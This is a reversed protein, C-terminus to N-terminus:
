FIEGSPNQSVLIADETLAYDGGIKKLEFYNDVNVDTDTLPAGLYWAIEYSSTFGYFAEFLTFFKDSKEIWKSTLYSDMESTLTSNRLDSQAEMVISPESIFRPEASDIVEVFENDGTEVFAKRKELVDQQALHMCENPNPEWSIDKGFFAEKVNMARIVLEKSNPFYGFVQEFDNKTYLRNFMTPAECDDIEIGNELLERWAGLQREVFMRNTEQM